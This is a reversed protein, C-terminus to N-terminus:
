EHHNQFIALLRAPLAIQRNAQFVTQKKLHGEM